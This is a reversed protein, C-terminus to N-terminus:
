QQGVYRDRYAAYGRGDREADLGFQALTYRHTGHKDRPRSELYRAMRIRSEESLEWRFARYLRDIVSLPDRMLTAFDVDFFQDAHQRLADRQEMGRQIVEAFYDVEFRAIEIPDIEDSYAGHLSTALSSISGMVEVPERHTQIVTAEPYQRFLADLNAIHTPAKLLWRTPPLNVQLHQLFQHHWQYTDTMDRALLWEAYSPSFFQIRWQDSTFNSAFIAVCEQPLRAGVAHIAQFDPALHSLMGLQDDIKAIRPDDADGSSSPPPLPEAVEWTAPARHRTDQALLEYLITSGTRPLGAVIIPRDIIQEAVQPTRKRFDVLRLRKELEGLVGGRIALQGIESLRGESSASHVVADVGAIFGMEGFDDLGSNSAALELLDGPQDPLPSRM